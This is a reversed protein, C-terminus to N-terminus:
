LNTQSVAVVGFILGDMQKEICLLYCMDQYTLVRFLLVGVLVLVFFVCWVCVCVCM